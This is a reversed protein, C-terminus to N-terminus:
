QATVATCGLGFADVSGGARIRAVTAIEGPACDEDPRGTGGTGGIPTASIITGTSVTWGGPGRSLILPACRLTVQDVLAGTRSGFGVAVHDVPCLGTGTTGGSGGGRTPLARPSGVAVEFGGQGDSRVSMAACRAGIRNLWPNWGGFVGVLAEGSGCADDFASGGSTNGYQVTNGGASFRLEPEDRVTIVLPRSRVNAPVYEATITTTGIGGARLVGRSGLRDDVVAVTTSSSTWRVSGTMRYVNGDTFTGLATLQENTGVSPQTTPSSIALSVVSVMSMVTVQASGNSQDSSVNTVPDVARISATGAALGLGVGTDNGMTGVPVVTTSSSTWEVSDSLDIVSQNNFTGNAQFRVEAGVPLRVQTPVVTLSVLNLPRVTALASQATSNSSIGTSPDTATITSTGPAAATVLGDQDVTASSGVARWQVQASIDVTSTDTFTGVARAQVEDGIVMSLNRPEVALSVLNPPGVSVIANGGLGSVTDRATVTVNGQTLSTLLGAADVTAVVSNSTSWAVTNTVDVQNGTTFTGLATFQESTGAALTASSPSLAIAVLRPPLVTITASAMLGSDDDMATITARGAGLGQVRGRNVGNDVPAVQTDSSRWRVEDTRDVMTGDSGLVRARFFVFEGASITSTAPMVTLAEAVAEGVRASISATLGSIPETVEVRTQGVAIGTLLGAGDVTAVATDLTRWSVSDTVTATTGNSLTAIAQLQRSRGAPVSVFDPSIAVMVPRLPNVTISATGEVGSVAATITTTGDAVSTVVGAAVEAVSPDSSTWTARDSVEETSGDRYEATAILTQTAGIELTASSPAVAVRTLVRGGVVTLDATASRGDLTATIQVAGGAVGQFTGPERLMAVTEDSSVWTADATRDERAGDSLTAWLRLSVQAGVDVTPQSPEIAVSDVTIPTVAVDDGGCASLAFLLFAPSTLHIPRPLIRANVASFVLLPTDGVTCHVWPSASSTLM